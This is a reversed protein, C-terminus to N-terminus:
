QLRLVSLRHETVLSAVVILFGPVILFLLGPEGCSSFLRPLALFAWCLWLLLFKQTRSWPVM